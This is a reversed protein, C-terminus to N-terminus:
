SMARRAPCSPAAKTRVLTLTIPWRDAVPPSTCALSLSLSPTSSYSIIIINITPPLLTPAALRAETEARAAAAVGAAQM